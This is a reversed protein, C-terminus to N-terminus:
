SSEIRDKLTKSNVFRAMKNQVKQIVKNDGNTPDNYNVRVKGYLQLGYNIKSTFLGDM